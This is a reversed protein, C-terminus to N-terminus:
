DSLVGSQGLCRQSSHSYGPYSLHRQHMRPPLSSCYETPHKSSALASTCNELITKTSTLYSSFSPWNLLTSPAYCVHPHAQAELFLLPMRLQSLLLLSNQNWNTNTTRDLSKSFCKKHVSTYYTPVIHEDEERTQPCLLFCLSTVM